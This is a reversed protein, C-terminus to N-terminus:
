FHGTYPPITKVPGQRDVIIVERLNPHNALLGKVIRELPVKFRQDELPPALKSKDQPTAWCSSVILSTAAPHILSHKVRYPYRSQVFASILDSCILASHGLHLLTAQPRPERSFHIFEEEGVVARKDIHGKIEGNGIVVLSNRAIGEENFSASGLLVLAEPHNLALEQTLKIREEITARMKKIQDIPVPSTILEPSIIYGNTPELETFIREFEEWTSVAIADLPTGDVLDFRHLGPSRKYDIECSIPKAM